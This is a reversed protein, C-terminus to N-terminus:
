LGGVISLSLRIISIRSFVNSYASNILISFYVAFLTGMEMLFFLFLYSYEFFFIKTISTTSIPGPTTYINNIIVPIILSFSLFTCFSVFVVRININKKSFLKKLGFKIADFIPQLVGGWGAVTPGQRRQLIALVKRENYSMIGLYFFIAFLILM